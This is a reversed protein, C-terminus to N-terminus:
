TRGPQTMRILKLIDQYRDLLLFLLLFRRATYHLDLGNIAKEFPIASQILWNKFRSQPALAKITQKLDPAEVLQKLLALVSYVVTGLHWEQARQTITEWRVGRKQVVLIMDVLTRATQVGFQHGIALHTALHILMDEAAMQYAFAQDHLHEKRGWIALEDVLAIQQLWKGKFPSTHLEVMSGLYEAHYLQVEGQLLLHQSLSRGPTLQYQYGISELTSLANSIQDKEIWVDIDSMIRWSPDDYVTQGLAAGKLLVFPIQVKTLEVMVQKLVFQQLESAAIAYFTDALLAPAFQPFTNNLRHYAFAGLEKQILWNALNQDAILQQNPFSTGVLAALITHSAAAELWPEQKVSPM